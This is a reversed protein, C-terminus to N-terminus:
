EKLLQKFRPSQRLSMLDDDTEITKRSYGNAAARELFGLARESEGWLAHLVSARFLIDASEPATALAQELRTRAAAPEGAKQLYVALAALNRADTPNVKLDAEGLRVAERYAAKAEAARGLRTLADGLNRRTASSNPRIEIAHQYADVAGAFDGTSHLFAGLNSYAQASPRIALAKRYNAVAEATNGLFQYATGLQQYVRANDPFREAADALVEVADEYRAANVLAVGMASYPAPSTPRLAIAKRFEIIAADINGQAAFLQGLQTRADEYNPQLALARYLEASAEDLRGAGALTLGLVYRVEARNPDLALANTAEDIAQQAWIPDRVDLYKQRYAEALGTHALAFKPDLKAAQEFASVAADINGKVDARELLAKGQWYASLAQPSSTPQANIRELESASVRVVLANTLAMALKSQLEFIAEFKGEIIDGWAVSRDSRVLHLSVRLTGSSEQVSGEVLYTAGLDKTLAGTDATRLKADNVAARSLVTVSPVAALSSILSEAIGAAVFDRSPDGSINTLPLVAVVPPASANGSPVGSFYRTGWLGFGVLAVVAAAAAATKWSRRARVPPLMATATAGSITRLESLVEQASAPRRDRDRQLLSAVLHELPPPVIQGTSSLPPADSALKISALQVRDNGLFPRRGGIMEFLVVGLAYLDAREDVASSVMQEPAAYGATGIFGAGSVTEAPPKGTSDTSGVALIRAIGFDLVKVHGDVGIIVNAPKLDRHVIGHAHAAALAKAIQSAIDVAEDVAIRERAIRVHLTEGEVYEFVVVVEGQEELVDHVTAIHPHNLAAAARAERMLRERSARDEPGAPRVMKLAVRRQLRTDEALWVEGMGGSGLHSLIRYPGVSTGIQV